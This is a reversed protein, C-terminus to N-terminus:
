EGKAQYTTHLYAHAKESGPEGLYSSYLEKIASNEYSKRVSCREDLHYLGEARNKRIDIVTRKEAMQQPQGGGNVCGGPCAMVEVFDYVAEGSKMKELLKETNALGSVAAVKLDTKGVKYVAEKVGEIGRVEKYDIAKQPTGNAWDNATRLAAEMVGGTAGFITGAGTGIGLPLDFDEDELAIFPIDAREIMRGLERNTISFDVDPVGGANEDARTLEYKKATCPMVSVVVIRDKDIGEKEALYTKIMAGAMQQPSKCTSIHNLLEPHNEECYSIWGPCCSTFMPMNEGSNMREILETAEEMITLDAGFVTDFVRDFGLRRLAAALKGKTVSGVPYRFTEGISARVSPAAQVIVYKDPDAILEFIRDTDDRERLAGVPCVSICQGCNVCGSEALTAGRSPVVRGKMGEGEMRIAGIGQVDKCVAVCRGCRVCKNHDRVIIGDEVVDTNKIKADSAKKTMRLNYQIEQLECNGTRLCHRCDLDHHDLINQLAKKQLGIVEPSNTVIEMGEEVTVTSANVIGKGSVEAICLGSTDEQQVDKLYNLSLINIDFQKSAYKDERSAELVSAGERAHVPNGNITINVM